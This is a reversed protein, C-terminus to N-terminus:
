SNHTAKRGLLYLILARYPVMEMKTEFRRLLFNFPQRMIKLPHYRLKWWLFHAYLRLRFRALEAYDERWTPSFNLQSLNQYGEFQDFIASGPVPTIVFLAVEDVGKRTLDNVMDWTMQRDEDTEGPYGLVFCAQSRIGAENMRKVLRVAHELDFPKRMTKLLRPSGTEPSISIYRCGAQAMLDITEEDRITEVKTGASIKWVVDLDRNIIEHCIARIREDSITPDLDEIHFENVGFAKMYHAMEDVVNSASRPRWKQNNTAPVVCFECPYPCGRSTLLPLYRKSSQPGHAFRLGWYNELPFLDWAPFPLEDLEDEALYDGQPVAFGSTVLGPIQYVSEDDGAELTQALKVANRDAEGTLVYDVGADLFEQAVRSLAYATVAQTNELVVIPLDPREAKIERIIHMTSLHNTLNIAYIFVAKTSQPIRQLVEETSLGLLLFDDQARAQRPNEAFADIVQVEVGGERLSAATYALSIPMYVIGTTFPDNRQVILNPNILIVSM